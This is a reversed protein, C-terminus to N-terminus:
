IDDHYIASVLSIDIGMKGEDLALIRVRDGGDHVNSGREYENKPVLSQM